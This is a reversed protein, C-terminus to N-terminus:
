PNAHSEIKVNDHNSYREVHMSETEPKSHSEKGGKGGMLKKLEEVFQRMREAQDTIGTSVASFTDLNKMNREVVCNLSSFSQSIHDLTYVQEQSAESIHSVYEEGKKARESMAAFVTETRALTQSGQQIRETAEEILAATRKAAGASRLALRKVEDAVVAFGEGAASGGACVRAAEIAANLALLHTELAIKDIESVIAHTEENSREILRMSDILESVAGTAREAIASTEGMLRNAEAANEANQRAM